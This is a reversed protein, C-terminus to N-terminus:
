VSLQFKFMKLSSILYFPIKIELPIQSFYRITVYVSDHAVVLRRISNIIITFIGKKHRAKFMPGFEISSTGKVRLLLNTSNEADEVIRRIYPGANQYGHSLVARSIRGRLTKLWLPESSPSAVTTSYHSGREAAVYQTFQRANTRAKHAREPCLWVHLIM